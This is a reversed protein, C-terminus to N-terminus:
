EPSLKRRRRLAWILFPFAIVDVLIGIGFSYVMFYAGVGHPIYIPEFVMMIAVLVIPFYSIFIIGRLLWSATYRNKFTRVICWLLGLVAPYFPFLLIKAIGGIGGYLFIHAFDHM